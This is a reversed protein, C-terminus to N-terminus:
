NPMKENIIFSYSSIPKDKLGRKIEKKESNDSSNYIMMNLKINKMFNKM